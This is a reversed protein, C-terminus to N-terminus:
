QSRFNLGQQNCRLYPSGPPGTPVYIHSPVTIPNQSHGKNFIDVTRVSLSVSPTQKLVPCSKELHPSTSLDNKSNCHTLEAYGYKFVTKIHESSLLLFKWNLQVVCLKQYYHCRHSIKHIVCISILGVPGLYYAPRQLSGESVDFIDPCGKPIFYPFGRLLELM